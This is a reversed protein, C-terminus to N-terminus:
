KVVAVEKNSVVDKITPKSVNSFLKGSHDVVLTMGVESPRASLLPFDIQKM